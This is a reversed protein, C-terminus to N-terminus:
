FILGLMAAMSEAWTADDKTVVHENENSVNSFAELIYEPLVEQVGDAVAGAASMVPKVIAQRIPNNQLSEKREDYRASRQEAFEKIKTDFDAMHSQYQEPTMFSKLLAINPM